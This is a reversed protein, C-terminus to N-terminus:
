EWTLLTRTASNCNTLRKQDILNNWHRCNLLSYPIDSFNTTLYMLNAVEVTTPANDQHFLVEKHVLLQLKEQWKTGLYNLWSASTITGFQRGLNKTSLELFVEEYYGLGSAVTKVMKPAWKWNAIWQKFQETTDPLLSDMNWRSHLILLLLGNTATSLTSCRVRDKKQDVTLFRSWWETSLKAM